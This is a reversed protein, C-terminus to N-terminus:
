FYRHQKEYEALEIRSGRRVSGLAMRKISIERQLFLEGRAFAMRDIKGQVYANTVIQRAIQCDYLSVYGKARRQSLVDTIYLSLGVSVYVFTFLHGFDVQISYAIAIFAFAGIILHVWTIKKLKEMTSYNQNIGPVM